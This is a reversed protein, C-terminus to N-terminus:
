ARWNYGTSVLSKESDRIFIVDVNKNSLTSGFAFHPPEHYQFPSFALCLIDPNRGLLKHFGQHPEAPILAQPPKAKKADSFTVSRIRFVNTIYKVTDLHQDM